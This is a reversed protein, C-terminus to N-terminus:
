NMTQLIANRIYESEIKEYKSYVPFCLMTRSLNESVELDRVRHPTVAGKYGTLVSPYYYRKTAIGEEELKNKVFILQRENEFKVPFLSWLQDSSIPIHTHSEKPFLASYTESVFKARLLAISHFKELAAVGRADTFEDMNENSGDGYTGDSSFAFNVRRQVENVFSSDGVVLGGEGVGLVKTAHMSFVERLAREDSKKPKLPYAAASDLIFAVGQESLYDEMRLTDERKGFVRTQIVVSPKFGQEFASTVTERSLEWTNPDVDCLVPIGGAQIVAQITAAFTFNSLLVQKGVVNLAQLAAIQGVTNNAVGICSEVNIQNIVKENLLKWVPGSNSYQNSSFISETLRAWDELAPVDPRVLPLKM